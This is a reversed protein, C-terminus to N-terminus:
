FNIAKGLDICSGGGFSVVADVADRRAQMMAAQVVDAPLHSRVATFRSALTRGLRAVVREGEDSAARGETTLLLLRRVGLSRSVEPLDDIVGTGFRVQQAVGTHTWGDVVM